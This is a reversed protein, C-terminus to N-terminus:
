NTCLNPMLPNGVGVNATADADTTAANEKILVPVAGVVVGAVAVAVAGVAAVAEQDAADM